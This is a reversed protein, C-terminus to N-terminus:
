TGTYNLGLNVRKRRNKQKETYKADYCSLLAARLRESARVARAIKLPDVTFSIKTVAYVKSWNVPHDHLRGLIMPELFRTDIKSYSTHLDQELLSVRYDTKDDDGVERARTDDYIMLESFMTYPLPKTVLVRCGALYTDTNYYAFLLEIDEPTTPKEKVAVKGLLAKINLSLGAEHSKHVNHKWGIKMREFTNDRLTANIPDDLVDIFVSRFSENNQIIKCLSRTCRSAVGNFLRMCSQLGILLLDRVEKHHPSLKAWKYYHHGIMSLRGCRQAVEFINDPPSVVTTFVQDLPDLACIFDLLDYPLTSFLDSAEEEEEEHTILVIPRKM